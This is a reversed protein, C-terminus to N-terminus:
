TQKLSVKNYVANLVIFLIFIYIYFSIWMGYLGFNLIFTVIYTIPVFFLISLILSIGVLINNQNLGRIADMLVMQLADFPLFLMVIFFIYKTMSLIDYDNSFIEAINYGFIGIGISIPVTLTFIAIILNTKLKKLIINKNDIKLAYKEAVETSATIGMAIGPLYAFTLVNLVIESAALEKVGIKSAFFTFFFITLALGVDQIGIKVGDFFLKLDDVLNFKKLLSIKIKQKNIIIILIILQLLESVILSLALGVLGGNKVLVFYYSLLVNVFNSILTIYMAIKMKEMGRLIAIYVRTLSILAISILRLDLYYVAEELTISFFSLIYNSLMILICVIPLINLISIRIGSEISNIIIEKNHNKKNSSINIMIQFNFSILLLIINQIIINVVGVIAIYDYGLKSVIFLSILAMISSSSLAILTPITLNIIKKVSSNSSM